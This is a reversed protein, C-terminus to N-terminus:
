MLMGGKPWFSAVSTARTERQEGRSHVTGSRNEAEIISTCNTRGRSLSIFLFTDLLTKKGIEPQGHIWETTMTTGDPWVISGNGHQANQSWEGIYKVGSGPYFYTGIGNM